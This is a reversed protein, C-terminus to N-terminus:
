MTHTSLGLLSYFHLNKIRDWGHVLSQKRPLSGSIGPGPLDQAPGRRHFGCLVLNGPAQVCLRLVGSNRGYRCYDRLAGIGKAKDHIRTNLCSVQAKVKWISHTFGFCFRERKEVNSKITRPDGTRPKCFGRLPYEYEIGGRETHSCSFGLTMRKMIEPQVNQATQMIQTHSEASTTSMSHFALPVKQDSSHAM